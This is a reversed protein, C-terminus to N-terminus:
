KQLRSCRSQGNQALRPRISFAPSCVPPTAPSVAGVVLNAQALRVHDYDIAKNVFMSPADWISLSPFKAGGLWDSVPVVGPLADRRIKDLDIHQQMGASIQNQLRRGERDIAALVPGLFVKDYYGAGFLTTNLLEDRTLRGTATAIREGGSGICLWVEFQHPDRYIHHPDSQNVLTKQDFRLWIGQEALTNRVSGLYSAEDPNDTQPKLANPALLAEFDLRIFQDSTHVQIFNEL